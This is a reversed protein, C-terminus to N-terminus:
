LSKGDFQIVPLAALDIDDLCRLNIAVTDTGDPAIGRAFSSVGCTKCFLHHIVKKAFQYDSLSESGSVLTFAGAPAFALLTGRKSCISCNCSVAQDLALNVTFRVAGCHCGGAHTKTESM